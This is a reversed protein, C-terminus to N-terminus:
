ESTYDASLNLPYDDFGCCLVKHQNEDTTQQPRLAAEAINRGTDVLFSDDNKVGRRGNIYKAKTHGRSATM